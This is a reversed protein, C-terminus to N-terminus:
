QQEALIRAAASRDLANVMVIVIMIMMMVMGIVGMMMTLVMSMVVVGTSAMVVMM